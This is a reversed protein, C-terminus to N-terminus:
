RTAGAAASRRLSAPRQRGPQREMRSRLRDAQPQDRGVVVDVVAEVEVPVALALNEDLNRSPPTHVYAAHVVRRAHTVRACDHTADASCNAGKWTRCRRARMVTKRGAPLGCEREQRRPGAGKADN